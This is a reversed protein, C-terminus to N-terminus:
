LLKSKFLFYIFFTGVQFDSYLTSSQYRFSDAGRERWWCYTQMSEELGIFVMSSTYNIAMLQRDGRYQSHYIIMFPLLCHLFFRSNEALPLLGSWISCTYTEFANLATCTTCYIHYQLPTSRTNGFCVGYVRAFCPGIPEAAQIHQPPIVAKAIMVNAKHNHFFFHPFPSILIATCIYEEQTAKWNM